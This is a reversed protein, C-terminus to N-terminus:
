QLRSGETELRNGWWCYRYKRTDVIGLRYVKRIFKQKDEHQKHEMKLVEHKTQEFIVKHLCDYSEATANFGHERNYEAAESIATQIKLWFDASAEVTEVKGYIEVTVKM